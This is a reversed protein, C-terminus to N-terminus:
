ASKRPSKVRRVEGFKKGAAKARKQDAGFGKTVKKRGGSQGIKRMFANMNEESGHMAIMKERWIEGRSRAQPANPVEKKM